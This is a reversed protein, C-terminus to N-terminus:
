ADTKKNMRFNIILGIIVLAIGVPLLYFYENSEHKVTLGIQLGMIFIGILALIIGLYKKM